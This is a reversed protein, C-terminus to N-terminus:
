RFSPNFWQIVITQILTSSVHVVNSGPSAFHFTCGSEYVGVELLLKSRQGLVLRRNPQIPTHPCYLPTLVFAYAVFTAPFHLLFLVPKGTGLKVTFANPGVYDVSGQIVQNTSISIWNM